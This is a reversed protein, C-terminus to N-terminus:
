LQDLRIRVLPQSFEVPEANGAVIEIVEGAWQTPVENMLKMAEVIGVVQGEEVRDGKEVFPAAGPEPATYFTGVIPAVVERVDEALQEQAAAAEQQAPPPVAAPEGPSAAQRAWTVDLEWDGARLHLRELPGPLTKALSSAEERFHRLAELPVREVGGAAGAQRDPM